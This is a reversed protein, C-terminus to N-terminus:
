GRLVRPRDFDNNDILVEARRRPECAAFYLRQGEIYRRTRPHEPDPDTGDREAMRTTTEAVAVDLFVALDWADALEDRLLFIGDVLLISGPEAVRAAPAVAVDATVDHAAHRYRRSGGPGFPDLVDTHFRDYDYSDLWFGVPSDRGRRYREDRPRHFDDISVRVVSRGQALLVNALDDAFRTKGAGDPGDVAVRPCRGDGSPPIRAAVVRLM